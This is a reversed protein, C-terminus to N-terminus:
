ACLVAFEPVCELTLWTKARLRKLCIALRRYRIVPGLPGPLAVTEWSIGRKRGNLYLVASLLPGRPPGILRADYRISRSVSDQVAM